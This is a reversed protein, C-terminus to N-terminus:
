QNTEGFNIQTLFNTYASDLSSIIKESLNLKIEDLSKLLETQQDKNIGSLKNNFDTFNVYYNHTFLRLLDIEDFINLKDIPELKVDINLNLKLEEFAINVDPPPTEISNQYYM